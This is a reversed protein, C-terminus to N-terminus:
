ETGSRKGTCHVVDVRWVGLPKRYGEVYARGKEYFDASYKGVLAMLARRREEPDEVLVAKGFVIVSAYSTTFREPAVREYGIVALSVRADRRLAAVKHGETACHFYIADPEVLVFNLPVAYPYGVPSLCALTCFPAARLIDLIEEHSLAKAARRLPPFNCSSM